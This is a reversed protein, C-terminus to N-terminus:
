VLAQLHATGASDTCENLDTSRLYKKCPGGISLSFIKRGGSAIFLGMIQLLQIHM